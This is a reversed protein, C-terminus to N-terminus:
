NANYTLQFCTQDRLGASSRGYVHSETYVPPKYEFHCSALECTVALMANRARISLRKLLNYKNIFSSSSVPVPLRSNRVASMLLSILRHMVTMSIDAPFLSSQLPPFLTRMSSVCSVDNWGLSHKITKSMFFGSTRSTWASGCMLKM